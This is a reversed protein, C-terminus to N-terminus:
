TSFRTEGSRQACLAHGAETSIVVRPIPLLFCVVAVVLAVAVAFVCRHSPHKPLSASKEAASSVILGHAAETSIVVKPITLLFCVVAVVFAVARAPASGLHPL